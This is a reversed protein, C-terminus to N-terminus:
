EFKNKGKWIPHSIMNIYLALVDDVRVGENKIANKANEFKEYRHFLTPVHRCHRYSAVCSTHSGCFFIEIYSYNYSILDNFVVYFFLRFFYNFSLIRVNWDSSKNFLYYPLLWNWTKRCQNQSSYLKISWKVIYWENKM